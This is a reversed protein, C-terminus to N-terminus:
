PPNHLGELQTLPLQVDCSEGTGEQGSSPAEKKAWLDFQLRYILNKSLHYAAQHLNQCM